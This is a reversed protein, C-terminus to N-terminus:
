SGGVAGLESLIAEKGPQVLLEKRFEAAAGQRDGKAKLIEGHLFHLDLEKAGAQALVAEHWAEDAEAIRGQYLRIAAIM